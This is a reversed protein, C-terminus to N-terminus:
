RTRKHNEIWDDVDRRPFLVRGGFMIFPIGMARYTRMLHQYDCRLLAALERPKLMEDSLTASPM